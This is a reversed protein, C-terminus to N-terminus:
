CDSSNVPRNMIVGVHVPEFIRPTSGKAPEMTLLTLRVRDTLRGREKHVVDFVDFENVTESTFSRNSVFVNSVSSTIEHIVSHPVIGYTSSFGFLYEAHQFCKSLDRFKKLQISTGTSKDFNPLVALEFSAGKQLDQASLRQHDVKFAVACEGITFNEIASFTGNPRGKLDTGFNLQNIILRIIDLDWASISKQVVISEIGANDFKVEFPEHSMHYNYYSAGLTRSTESIDFARPSVEAMKSDQTHCSLSDSGKPRCKLKAILNSGFYEPTDGRIMEAVMGIDVQYTYEPGYKLVNQNTLMRGVLFLPLVISYMESCTTRVTYHEIRCKPSRKYSNYPVFRSGSGIGNLQM